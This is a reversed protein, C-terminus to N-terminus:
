NFLFSFESSREDFTYLTRRLSETKGEFMREVLDSSYESVLERPNESGRSPCCPFLIMSLLENVVSIISNVNVVVKYSFDTALLSTNTSLRWLLARNRARHSEAFRRSSLVDVSAHPYTAVFPCSPPTESSGQGLIRALHTNRPHM